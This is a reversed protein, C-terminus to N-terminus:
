SHGVGSDADGGDHRLTGSSRIGRRGSVFFESRVLCYLLIFANLRLLGDTFVTWVLQTNWTYVIVIYAKANLNKRIRFQRGEFLFLAAVCNILLSNTYLHEDGRLFSPCGQPKEFENEGVLM